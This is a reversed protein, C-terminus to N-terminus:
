VAAEGIKESYVPPLALVGHEQALSTEGVYSRVDKRVIEPGGPTKWMTWITMVFTVFWLLRGNADGLFSGTCPLSM